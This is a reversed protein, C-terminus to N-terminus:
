FPAWGPLWCNMFNAFSYYIGFTLVLDTILITVPKRCGLVLAFGPFLVLTTLFFGISNFGLYYVVSLLLVAGVILVTRYGNRDSSIQKLDAALVTFAHRDNKLTRLLIIASMLLILWCCIKPIARPTTGGSQFRPIPIQAPIIVLLILLALVICICATMLDKSNKTM